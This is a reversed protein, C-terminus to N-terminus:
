GMKTCTTIISETGKYLKLGAQWRLIDRTTVFKLKRPDPFARMGGKVYEGIVRL